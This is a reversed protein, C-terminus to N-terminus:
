LPKRDNGVYIIAHKGDLTPLLYQLLGNKEGNRLTVGIRVAAPQSRMMLSKVRIKQEGPSLSFQDADEHVEIKHRGINM